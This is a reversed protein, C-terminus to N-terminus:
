QGVLGLRKAASASARASPIIVPLDGRLVAAASNSAGLDIGIINM